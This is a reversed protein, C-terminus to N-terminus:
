LVSSTCHIDKYEKLVELFQKNVLYSWCNMGDETKSQSVFRIKHMFLFQELHRNTTKFISNITM